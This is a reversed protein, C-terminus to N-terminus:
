SDRLANLIATKAASGDVGPVAEVERGTPTRTLEGTPGVRIRIPQVRALTPATVTIAALEDWLSQGSTLLFRNKDLLRWALNAAPASTDTSLREFFELDLPLANTADLPVLTAPVTRLVEAFAIPRRAREV